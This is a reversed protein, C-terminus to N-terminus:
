FGAGDPLWSEHSCVCDGAVQRFGLYLTGRSRRYVMTTVEPPYQSTTSRGRPLGYDGDWALNPPGFKDRIAQLTHGVFRFGLTKEVPSLTADPELTNPLPQLQMSETAFPAANKVAVCWILAAICIWIIIAGITQKM